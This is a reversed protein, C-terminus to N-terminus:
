YFNASILYVRALPFCFFVTHHSHIHKLLPITSLIMISHYVIFSRSIILNCYVLHLGFSFHSMIHQIFSNFCIVDPSRKTLTKQQQHTHLHLECPKRHRPSAARIACMQMQSRQRPHLHGPEPFTSADDAKALKEHITCAM